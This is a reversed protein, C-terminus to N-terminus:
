WLLESGLSVVLAETAWISVYAATWRDGGKTFSALIWFIAAAPALCLQAWFFAVNVMRSYGLVFSILLAYFVGALFILGRFIAWVWADQRTALTGSHGLPVPPTPVRGWSDPTSM